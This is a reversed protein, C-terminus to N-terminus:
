SEPQQVWDAPVVVTLSNESFSQELTFRYPGASDDPVLFPVLTQFATDEGLGVAGCATSAGDIRWGLVIEASQFTRLKGSTETITIPSCTGQEEGDIVDGSFGIAVIHTGEPVDYEPLDAQTFSGSRFRDLRYGAFNASGTRDEMMVVNSVRQNQQAIASTVTHAGAFGLGIVCLAALPLANRRWWGTM